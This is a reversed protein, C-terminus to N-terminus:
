KKQRKKFDIFVDNIIPTATDEAIIKGGYAKYVRHFRPLGNEDYTWASYIYLGYGYGNGWGIELEEDIYFLSSDLGGFVLVYKDQYRDLRLGQFDVASEEGNPNVDSMSNLYFTAGKYDVRTWESLVNNPNSPDLLDEGAENTYTFYLTMPPFEEFPMRYPEENSCSYLSSILFVSLAVLLNKM